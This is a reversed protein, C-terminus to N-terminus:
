GGSFRPADAAGMKISIAWALAFHPIIVMRVPDFFPGADSSDASNTQTLTVSTLGALASVPLNRGIEFPM